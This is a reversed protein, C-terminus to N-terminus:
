LQIVLVESDTTASLQLSDMNEIAAGDGAKLQNGNATIEGASVLLYAKAPIPHTLTTSAAIRGGFIAADAHIYLAGKGAHKPLGSVLLPLTDKAIEKPFEAAKWRPAVNKERPEIWIQYLTTNEGEGAFESHTVGTGASMVQVDGAKTVGDSGLSDRHHIAGTRVYTIIEMDRHPHPAFGKGAQIRDDNIVRLGGFGMYKQDHFSGFSFHHKAKLWGHDAGGLDEFRRINLTGKSM